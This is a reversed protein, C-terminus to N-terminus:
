IGAGVAALSADAVPVPPREIVWVYDAPQLLAPEDSFCCVKYCVGEHETTARWAYKACRSPRNDPLQERRMDRLPLWVAGLGGGLAAIPVVCVWKQELDNTKLSPKDFFPKDFLSRVRCWLGLGAINRSTVRTV